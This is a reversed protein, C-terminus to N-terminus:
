SKKATNEVQLNNIIKGFSMGATAARTGAIQKDFQSAVVGTLTVHGNEVVIHIPKFPQIAYKTMSPDGYIARAIRQRLQDDNPSLPLVRIDNQVQSAGAVSKALRDIDAKEYPQVVEGSLRVMGNAVQINVDDWISYHPYMVIEHRVRNALAADTENVSGPKDVAGAVGVGVVGAGVLLGAVALFRGTFTYRM